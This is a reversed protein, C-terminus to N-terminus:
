HNLQDFADKLTNLASLESSHKHIQSQLDKLCDMIINFNNLLLDQNLITDIKLTITNELSIQSLKDM